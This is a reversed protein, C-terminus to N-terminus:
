APATRASITGILQEDITAQNVVSTPQIANLPTLSPTEYPATGPTSALDAADGSGQSLVAGLDLNTNPSAVSSAASGTSPTTQARAAGPAAAFVVALVLPSCALWLARRHSHGLVM